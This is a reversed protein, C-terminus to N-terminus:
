ISGRLSPREFVFGGDRPAFLHASCSQGCSIRALKRAVEETYAENLSWGDHIYLIYLPILGPLRWIHRHFHSYFGYNGHKRYCSCWLQVLFSSKFAHPLFRSERM